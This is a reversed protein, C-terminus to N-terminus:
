PLHLARRVAVTLTGTVHMSYNKQLRAIANSVAPSFFGDIPGCYYGLRALDRQLAGVYGPQTILEHGSELYYLPRWSYRPEFDTANPRPMQHLLGLDDHPALPDKSHFLPDDSGQVM